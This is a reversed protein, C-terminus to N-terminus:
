QLHAGALRDGGTLYEATDAVRALAGAGVQMELDEEVPGCGGIGHRPHGAVARDSASGCRRRQLACQHVGTATLHRALHVKDHTRFGAQEGPDQACHFCTTRAKVNM